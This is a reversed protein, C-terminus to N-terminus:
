PKGKLCVRRMYDGFGAYTNKVLGAQLYIEHVAPLNCWAVNPWQHHYVHLHFNLNPLMLKQWWPLVILPTTLELPAGPANYVHECMAGWRVIAQFVTALPLIWYLLFLKWGGLATLVGALALMYAPQVWKPIRSQRDTPTGFSQKKGRIFKVVSLGCLDAAFLKVLDWRSKPYQWDPGSKRVHDPDADTFYHKHHALHVQAYKECTLLLLPYAVFLNVLLDGWRHRVGLLHAQDHVLLALVNQRTAVVLVALLSVVISQAYVAVMVACAIVLWATVTTAMFHLTEAGGLAKIQDISTAPLHSKADAAVSQPLLHTM